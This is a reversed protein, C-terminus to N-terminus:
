AIYIGLTFEPLHGLANLYLYETKFLGFIWLYATIIYLYFITFFSITSKNIYKYLPYFILYLQALCGLFWWPYNINGIRTLSFNDTLTLKLLLNKWNINDINMFIYIIIGLILLKELKWIRKIAYYPTHNKKIGKTLGYGSLFFFAYIGIYGFFSFFINISESLSFSSFITQLHLANFSFENCDYVPPLLHLFNHFVILTISIAKLYLTDNQTLFVSKM